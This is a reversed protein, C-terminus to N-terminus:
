LVERLTVYVPVKARDIAVALREGFKLDMDTIIGVSIGVDHMGNLGVVPVMFLANIQSALVSLDCHSKPQILWVFLGDNGQHIVSEPCMINLRAAITNILLRQNELSMPEVLHAYQEVKIAGIACLERGKLHHLETLNPLGSVPNTTAAAIVQGRVAERTGLIMLLLFAPVMEFHWGARDGVIMIIIIVATGGGLIAARRQRSSDLICFLGIIVAAILAPFFKFEFAVGNKITEAGIIFSYVASAMGQGPIQYMAARTESVTGIMITKGSIKSRDIRDLLIDSASITPITKYDVAYDPKLDKYVPSGTALIGALSPYADDAVLHSEPIIKIHRFMNLWFWFHAQRTRKAFLPNPLVSDRKGTVQNDQTMVSLWVKGRARDFAAALAGDDIPNTLAVFTDDMAVTRAGMERLKDILAADYRRPWPIAGFQQASRDDKAIVVINGSASLSRAKDRVIQLSVEAPQGFDTVGVFLAVCSAVVLAFAGSQRVKSHTEALAAREDEITGKTVRNWILTLRALLGILSWAPPVFRAPTNRFLLDDQAGSKLIADVLGRKIHPKLKHRLKADMRLVAQEAAIKARQVEGSDKNM